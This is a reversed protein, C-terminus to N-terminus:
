KGFLAELGYTQIKQKFFHRYYMMASMGNAAVDFIKWGTAGQYMRFFVQLLYEQERYIKVGIMVEGSSSNKRAPLLSFQYDQQGNGLHRVLSTLLMAQLYRSLRNLQAATMQLKYRGAVWQAMHDFDFYPLIEAELRTLIQKPVTQPTVQNHLSLLNNLGEQLSTQPSSSIPSIAPTPLLTKAQTTSLALFTLFFLILRRCYGQSRTQMTLRRLNVQQIYNSYELETIHIYILKYNARVPM